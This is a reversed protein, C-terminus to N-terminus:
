KTTESRLSTNSSEINLNFNDDKSKLIDSLFGAVDELFPKQTRFVVIVNVTAIVESHVIFAHVYGIQPDSITSSEFDKKENPNRVTSAIFGNPQLTGILRSM